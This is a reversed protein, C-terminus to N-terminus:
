LETSARYIEDVDGILNFSKENEIQDVLLEGGRTKVTIKGNWNFFTRCAIASALIGTGCSLTEDEVGREYTRVAITKESLVQVFNVNTGNPFRKDQRIRRGESVVPIYELNDVVLVVHPVGTNLYLAHKYGFDSLDYKNVDYLEAMTLCVSNDSVRAFYVGNKTEFRLDTKGILQAVFHAIARAGNGCMDAEHGDSNLYVMTFDNILSPEVFLVGDAGVGTRRACLRAYLDVNVSSYKKERNDIVIFDNGTASYKVFNLM